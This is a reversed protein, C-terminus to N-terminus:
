AIMGIRIEIMMAIIEEVANAMNSNSGNEKKKNKLFIYKRIYHGKGDAILIHGTKRKYKIPDKSNNKKFNTGNKNM